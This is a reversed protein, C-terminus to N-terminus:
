EDGGAMALAEAAAGSEADLVMEATKPGTVVAVFTQRSSENRLEVTDGYGASSLAKAVSKITFGGRRATVSVLDNRNIFPVPEIEKGTLMENANIFRMARQGIVANLDTMGVREPRDFTQERLAVDDSRITQGRNIPGTAVVVPKVLSIEALISRVQEPQSESSVTIDFPVLGLLRDSRDTISFDYTPRSLHLLDRVSPSLQISPKGGFRALRAAVHAYIFGELTDPDPREPPTSVEQEVPAGALSEHSAPQTTPQPGASSEPSRVPMPRSIRCRSAGRFMWLAPNIGRRTLAQQIAQLTLTADNGPAPAATIAWEGALEVGPGTLEAVDVLTVEDGNVTATPYVRVVTETAGATSSLCLVALAAILGACSLGHRATKNAGRRADHTTWGADQM